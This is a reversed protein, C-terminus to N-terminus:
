SQYRGYGHRVAKIRKNEKDYILVYHWSANEGKVFIEMSIAHQGTGDEYYFIPGVSNNDKAPLKQIYDQYDKTIAKDLEEAEKGHMINWGVLPNDIPKPASRNCGSIVMACLAFLLGIANVCRIRKKM